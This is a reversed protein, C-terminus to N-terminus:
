GATPPATNHEFIFIGWPGLVARVRELSKTFTSVYEIKSQFSENLGKFAQGTLAQDM